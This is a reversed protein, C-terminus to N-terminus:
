RSEAVPLVAIRNFLKILQETQVPKGLSPTELFREPLASRDYGTVFAFPVAGAQLLDAVDFALDGRLNVDLLVCDLREGSRIFAKAEDATAMPGIVVAGANTLASRAEDALFYEDEVVLIRAGALTQTAM